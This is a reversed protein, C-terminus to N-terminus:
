LALSAAPFRSDCTDAWPTARGHGEPSSGERISVVNKQVSDTGPALARAALVDAHAGHM